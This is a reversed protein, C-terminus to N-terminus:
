WLKPRCDCYWRLKYVIDKSIYRDEGVEFDYHVKLGEIKYYPTNTEAIIRICHAKGEGSDRLIIPLSDLEWILEDIKTSLPDRKHAESWEQHSVGLPLTNTSARTYTEVYYKALMPSGDLNTLKFANLKVASRENQSISIEYIFRERDADEEYTYRNTRAINNEHCQIFCESESSSSFDYTCKQNNMLYRGVDCCSTFLFVFLFFCIITRMNLEFEKNMEM